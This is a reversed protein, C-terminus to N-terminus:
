RSPYTNPDMWVEVLVAANPPDIAAHIAYSTTPEWRKHTASRESPPEISSTWRRHGRHPHRPARVPGQRSWRRGTTLPHVGEPHDRVLTLRVQEYPLLARALRAGARKESFRELKSVEHSVPVLVNVDRDVPLGGIFGALRSGDDGHGRLVKLPIDGIGASGWATELQRTVQPNKEIHVAVVQEARITKAYGLAHVTKPDLAEVM